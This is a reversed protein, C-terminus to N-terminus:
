RKALDFCAIEEGNRALLYGNTLAPGNWCRANSLLQGTYVEVFKEPNAEVVSLVGTNGLIILKDNVLLVRGYGYKNGRWKLQGDSADLCTFSNENFGYIFGDKYVPNSFKSKLNKSKWATDISYSGSADSTVTWCESGKGYGASLLLSNNSLVLPQAIQANNLFIKWPGIWSTKGTRPDLSAIQGSVATIMHEKGLLTMVSPSLYVGEGHFSSVWAPKGSDTHYARAAGKEGGPTVIVLDNWVLPSCSLGWEPFEYDEKVTKTEWLSKGSSANLCALFGNSFLAYLKGDVITPTSRPGVGSMFDDWRTQVSYKWLTLGDDLSRAIVLENQGDQEMTIVSQKYTIISSHGEGASTKWRPLPTRKWDIVIKQNPAVGDRAPGRYQSWDTPTSRLSTETGSSLKPPSQSQDKGKIEFHPIM